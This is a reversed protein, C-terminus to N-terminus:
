FVCSKLIIVTCVSTDDDPPPSWRPIGERLYSSWDIIEKKSNDVLKYPHKEFNNTPSESVGLLFKIINLRNNLEQSSVTHPTLQNYM